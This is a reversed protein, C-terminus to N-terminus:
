PESAGAASDRVTLVSAESALVVDRAVSGLLFTALGSRGRCGIVVMDADQESAAAVIQDAVQGTRVDASASRRANRLATVADAAIEEAESVATHVEQAYGEHAGVLFAPAVGVTWPRVAEAVAVVSVPVDAFAPWSAVVQAAVKASTSGDVALV